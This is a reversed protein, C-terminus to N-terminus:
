KGLCNKLYLTYEDMFANRQAKYEELTTFSRTEPTGNEFDFFVSINNGPFMVFSGLTSGKDISSRSLGYIKFSNYSLEIIDKTEMNIGRANLYKLNALINLTDKGYSTAASLEIKLNAFPANKNNRFLIRYGDMRSVYVEISDRKLIRFHDSTSPLRDQTGATLGTANKFNIYCNGIEPISSFSLFLSAMMFLIIKANM